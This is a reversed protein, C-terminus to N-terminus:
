STIQNKEITHNQIDQAFDDYGHSEQSNNYIIDPPDGDINEEQFNTAGSVEPESSTLYEQVSVVETNNCTRPPNPRDFDLDFDPANIQITDQEMTIKQQLQLITEELKAICPLINNINTCLNATYTQRM